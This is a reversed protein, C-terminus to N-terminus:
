DRRQGDVASSLSLRTREDAQEVGSNASRLFHTVDALWPSSAQKIIKGL